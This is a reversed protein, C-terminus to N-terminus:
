RGPVDLLFRLGVSLESNVRADGSGSPRDTYSSLSLAGYPGFGLGSFFYYDAGMELRLWELGSFTSKLGASEFSVQRYGAGALLWPDFRLGQSLHYRVFPGVAFSKGACDQCDEGDGYSAFSGWVGLAVSRSLGFGADAHLGLGTSLGRVAAVDSSLKGLSWTPGLAAGVLVHRGLLDKARPTLPPEPEDDDIVHVGPPHPDLAAEASAPGPSQALALSPVLLLGAGLSVARKM